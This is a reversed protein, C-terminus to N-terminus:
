KGELLSLRVLARQLAAEARAVDVESSGEKLRREARIRAENARAGDIDEPWDASEALIIVKEPLIEMFGTLLAAKKVESGEHIKLIGPAIGVIVPIHGPYIGMQGDATNLEVMTVDGQYFEGDPKIIQLTMKEAM